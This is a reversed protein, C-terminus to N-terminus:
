LIWQSDIYLYDVSKCYITIFGKQIDNLYDFEPDAAPRRRRPPILRDKVACVEDENLCVYRKNRKQYWPGDARIRFLSASNAAQKSMQIIQFITTNEAQKAYRKTPSYWSSLNRIDISFLSQSRLDVKIQGNDWVYDDSDDEYEGTEPLLQCRDMTLHTLGQALRSLSELALREFVLNRLTLKKISNEAYDDHIFSRDVLMADEITLSELKPMDSLSIDPIRDTSTERYGKLSLHSLKLERFCWHAGDHSYARFPISLSVTSLNRFQCSMLSGANIMAMAPDRHDLKISRIGSKSRDMQRTMIDGWNINKLELTTLLRCQQFLLEAAEECGEPYSRHDACSSNEIGLTRISPYKHGIYKLWQAVDEMTDEEIIFRLYEVSDYKKVSELSNTQSIPDFYMRPAVFTLARLCPCQRQILELDQNDLFKIETRIYLTKLTPLIPNPNLSLRDESLIIHLPESPNILLSQLRPCLKLIHFLEENPVICRIAISRISQGIPYDDQLTDCCSTYFIKWKEVSKIDVHTDFLSLLSSRWGKCVLLCTMKDRWSIQNVIQELIVLPASSAM